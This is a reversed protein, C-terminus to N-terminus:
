ELEAISEKLLQEWGKKDTPLNRSEFYPAIGKNFIAEIVQSKKIDLGTIEADQEATYTAAEYMWQFPRFSVSAGKKNKVEKSILDTM